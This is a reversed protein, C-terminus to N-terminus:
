LQEVVAGGARRRTIRRACVDDHEVIDARDGGFRDAWDFAHKLKARRRVRHDAGAGIALAPEVTLRDPEDVGRRGLHRRCQHLGRGFGPPAIRIGGALNAPRPGWSRELVVAVAVDSPQDHGIEVPLADAELIQSCHQMNIQLWPSAGLAPCCIMTSIMTAFMISLASVRRTRWTGLHHQRHEVGDGVPERAVVPDADPQRKLRATPWRGREAVLRPEIGEEGERAVMRAEILELGSAEPGGGLGRSRHAEAREDMERALVAPGRDLELKASLPRIAPRHDGEVRVCYTRRRHRRADAM